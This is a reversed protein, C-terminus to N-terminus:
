MGSGRATSSRAVSSCPRRFPCCMTGGPRSCLVSRGIGAPPLLSLRWSGPMLNRVSIPTASARSSSSHRTSCVTCAIVLGAIAPVLWLTGRRWYEWTLAWGVTRMTM